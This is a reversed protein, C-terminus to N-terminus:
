PGDQETFKDQVANHGDSSVSQTNSVATADLQQQERESKSLLETLKFAITWAKVDDEETALVEGDFKAKRVKFASAVDSNITYPVRAGNEDLAKAKTVLEELKSVDVFPVKTTVTLIAAKIGNDANILFSGAGSLDEGALKFGCKVKTEYGPVEWGDLTIM